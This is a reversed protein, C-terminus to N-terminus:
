GEGDGAQAAEGAEAAQAARDQEEFWAAARDAPMPEAARLQVDIGRVTCTATEQELVLGYSGFTRTSVEAGLAAAVTRLGDLGGATLHLDASGDGAQHGFLNVTDANLGADPHQECLWRFLDAVRAAQEVAQDVAAYPGPTQGGEDTDDDKGTCLPLGEQLLQGLHVLSTVPSVRDAARPQVLELAATEASWDVRYRLYELRGPSLLARAEEVQDPLGATVYQWTLDAAIDSVNVEASKHAEDLFAARAQTAVDDAGESLEATRQAYASLALEILNM